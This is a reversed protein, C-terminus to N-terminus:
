SLAHGGLIKHGTGLSGVELVWLTSIVCEGELIAKSKDGLFEPQRWRRYEFVLRELYQRFTCRSM